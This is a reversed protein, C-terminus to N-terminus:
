SAGVAARSPRSTACSQTHDSCVSPIRDTLASHTWRSCPRASPRCQAPRPLHGHRGCGRPRPKVGCGRPRRSKSQPMLAFSTLVTASLQLSQLAGVPVLLAAALGVAPLLILADFGQDRFVSTLVLIALSQVALAAFDLFTSLPYGSRIHYVVFIIFGLLQLSWTTTSIKEANERKKQVLEAIMPTYLSLAAVSMTWGLASAVVTQASMTAGEGGRLVALNAHAPPLTSAYPYPTRLLHGGFSPMGTRVMPSPMGTRVMPVAQRFFFIASALPPLLLSGDTFDACLGASAGIGIILDPPPVRRQDSAGRMMGCSCPISRSAVRHLWRGCAAAGTAVRSNRDLEARWM